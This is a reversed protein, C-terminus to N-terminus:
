AQATGDDPRPPGDLAGTAALLWAVVGVGAWLAIAIPDISVSPLLNTAPSSAVLLLAEPVDGLSFTVGSLFSLLSWSAWGLLASALLWLWLAGDVDDRAPAVAPLPRLPAAALQALETSQVLAMLRAQLEPPPEVVLAPRLIEDLRQEVDRRV